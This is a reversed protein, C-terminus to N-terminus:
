RSVLTLAFQEFPDDNDENESFDEHGGDVDEDVQV